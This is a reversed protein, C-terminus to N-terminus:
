LPEPIWRPEPLKKPTTKNPPTYSRERAAVTARQNTPKCAAPQKEEQDCQCGGERRETSIKFKITNQRRAHQMRML